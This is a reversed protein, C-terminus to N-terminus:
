VVIQSTNSHITVQGGAVLYDGQWFDVLICGSDLIEGVKGHSVFTENLDSASFVRRQNEGKELNVSLFNQKCVLVPAPRM